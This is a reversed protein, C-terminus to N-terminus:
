NKNLFEKLAELPVGQAWAINGVCVMVMGVVEEDKNLIPSGSGGADTNATTTLVKGVFLCVEEEYVKGNPHLMPGKFKEFKEGVCQDISINYPMKIPVIGKANGKTSTMFDVIPFGVAYVTEEPVVEDALKLPVANPPASLLCIDHKSDKALVQLTYNKGGKQTFMIPIVSDCVHVNTVLVKTGKKTKAAWATGRSTLNHVSYVSGGVDEMVDATKDKVNEIGVYTSLSLAAFLILALMLPAKYM